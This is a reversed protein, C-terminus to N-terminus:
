PDPKELAEMVANLQFAETPALIQGRACGSSGEGALRPTQVSRAKTLEIHIVLQAISCASRIPQLPVPGIVM